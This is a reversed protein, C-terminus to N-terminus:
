KILTIKIPNEAIEYIKAMKSSLRTFAGYAPHRDYTMNATKAIKAAVCRTM